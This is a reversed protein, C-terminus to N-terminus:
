FLFFLNLADIAIAANNYRECEAKQEQPVKACDRMYMTACGSAFFMSLFTALFLRKM